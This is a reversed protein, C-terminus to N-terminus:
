FGRYIGDPGAADVFDVFDISSLSLNNEISWMQSPVVRVTTGRTGDWETGGTSIALIPHEPHSVTRADVVFVYYTPPEGIEDLLEAVSMGEWSRDDVLTLNARFQDATQPALAESAIADWAGDDDFVTRILSSNDPLIAADASIQTPEFTCGATLVLSALILLARKRM